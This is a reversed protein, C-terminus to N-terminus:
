LVGAVGEHLRVAVLAGCALATGTLAAADLARFAPRRYATKRGPRDIGRAVAAAALEEAIKASRLMLPVALAEFMLAPRTLLNRASLGLGRLRMSASVAAAEERLTPFYRLMIAFPIVLSRPMRLAYLAATLDGTKTSTAFVVAFLAVPMATRALLMASGLAGAAGAPLHGALAFLGVIVLYGGIFSLATRARGMAFCLAAVVAFLVSGWALDKVLAGTFVILCLLILKTRVDLRDVRTAATKEQM